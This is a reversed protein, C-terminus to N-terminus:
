ILQFLITQKQSYKKGSSKTNVMCSERACKFLSEGVVMQYLIVGCAFVDAAYGYYGRADRIEPAMFERTGGDNKILGNLPVKVALGFDCIKLTFNKDFM